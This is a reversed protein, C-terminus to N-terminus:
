SQRIKDALWSDYRAADLPLEVAQETGMALMAANVLELAPEGEKGTVFPEGGSQVAATFYKFLEVHPDTFAVGVMEEVCESTPVGFRDRNEYIFDLVSGSTRDRLLRGNEWVLRGHEGVIELRNTGPFEATSTIFQGTMGGAHEMLITVEDDTQIAHYKGLNGFARVREPQGFLWGYLDLRHVAQNILLGGGEGAWTARWDATGYYAMTRYWSTDIWTARILRGLVRKQMLERLLRWIPQTREQFMVGYCLQPYAARVEKWVRTIERAQSLRHAVPKELLVHKGARLAQIALEAHTTHPTAIVVVDVTADGLLGALDPHARAAYKEATAATRAADRGAVAAIRAGPVGKLRRLHEEGIYGAGILGYGVGAGSVAQVDSM